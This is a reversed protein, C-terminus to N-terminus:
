YKPETIKKSIESDIKFIKFRIILKDLGKVKDLEAILNEKELLLEKTSLFSRRNPFDDKRIINSM